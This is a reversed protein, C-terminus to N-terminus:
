EVVKPVLFMGDRQAPANRLAAEVSLGPKAADEAWVNDIPFAHAMPEIGGVDVEQLHAIHALVEGLQASFSKKEEETLTIRALKAVHDIDFDPHSAM